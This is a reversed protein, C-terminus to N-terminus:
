TSLWIAQLSAKHGDTVQLFSKARTAMKSPEKHEVVLLAMTSMNTIESGCGSRMSVVLLEEAVAM